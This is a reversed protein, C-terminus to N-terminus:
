SNQVTLKVMLKTKQPLMSGFMELNMLIILNLDGVGQCSHMQQPLEQSQMSRSSNSSYKLSEGRNEKGILDQHNDSKRIVETKGSDHRDLIPEGSM